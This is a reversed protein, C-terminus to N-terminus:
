IGKVIFTVTEPDHASQANSHYTICAQEGLGVIGLYLETPCHQDPPCVTM